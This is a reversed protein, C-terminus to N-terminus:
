SLCLRYYNLANFDLLDTALLHSNFLLTNSAPPTRFHGAAYVEPMPSYFLFLEAKIFPTYSPGGPLYPDM